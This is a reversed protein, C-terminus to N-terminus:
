DLETPDHSRHALCLGITGILLLYSALLELYAGVTQPVDPHYNEGLSAKWLLSTGLFRALVFILMFASAFFGAAPRSVFEGIFAGLHQKHNKFKFLAYLGLPFFFWEVAFHTTKEILDDSEGLASALTIAGMIQYFPGVKGAPHAAGFWFASTMLLLVLQLGEVIGEETPLNPKDPLWAPFFIVFSGALVLATSVLSQKWPKEPQENM